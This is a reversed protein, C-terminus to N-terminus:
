AQALFVDCSERYCRRLSAVDVQQANGAACLQEGRHCLDGFARFGLNWASGRLFHLQAGFDAADADLAKIAGGAEDLFLQVVEAFDDNGIEDRLEAVREWDIM